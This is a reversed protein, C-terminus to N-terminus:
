SPRSDLVGAVEMLVEDGRLHGYRDNTFKFDDLDVMALALPEERRAAVAVARALEDQFSRHNGLETLSDRTARKVVLSHRRALTRGGLM